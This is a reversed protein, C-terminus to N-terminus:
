GGGLARHQPFMALMRRCSEHIRSVMASPDNLVGTMDSQAWGRWIVKDTRADVVDLMLTGEEYERMETEAHEYAVDREPTYVDVRERIVIHYHVLLDAEDAPAMAYGREVLQAEVEARTRNDFFPNSDFRPDGTPLEDRAGWAFTEYAGFDITPDFDANVAFSACAAGFAVAVAAAVIPRKM